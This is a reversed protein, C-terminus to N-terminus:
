PLLAEQHLKAVVQDVTQGSSTAHAQIAANAIQLLKLAFPAFAQVPSPVVSALEALIEGYSTVDELIRDLKSGVPVTSATTVPSVPITIAPNM